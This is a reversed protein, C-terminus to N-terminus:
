KAKPLEVAFPDPASCYDALTPFSPVEGRGLRLELGRELSRRLAASKPDRRGAFAADLRTRFLALGDLAALREVSSRVWASLFPAGAELAATKEPDLHFAFAWMYTEILRRIDDDAWSLKFDGARARLAYEKYARLFDADGASLFYQADWGSLFIELGALAGASDEAKELRIRALTAAALSRDDPQLVDDIAHALEYLAYEGEGALVLAKREKDYLAGGGLASVLAPDFRLTVGAKALALLIRDDQAHLSGLDRAARAVPGSGCRGGLDRFECLTYTGRPECAPDGAAPAGTVTPPAAPFDPPSNAPRAGPHAPAGRTWAAALVAAAVVAKIRM